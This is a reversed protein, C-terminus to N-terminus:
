EEEELKADLYCGRAVATFPEDVLRIESINIPFNKQEFENKFVDIFGSIMATGGGIVIPIPNPFTPMDAATKFKNAINALLYRILVGYYTKVANQERTRDSDSMKATGEEVVIQPNGIDTSGDEKIYQARAKSIGTDMAVHEDIFDGGRSVSFVLTKMGGYFIGVNCMGAGFSISIGTLNDNALGAYALAEAENIARPKYGLSEIITRLVDEHYNIITDKDLPNGPVSYVVTEDPVSPEGLLDGIIARLIPLADKEAPNLLGAAMPRRLEVSGFVQAYEYAAKGIVHLDDYLEIYPINLRKLSKKTNMSKDITIFANRQTKTSKDSISVYNGTGCDLGKAM